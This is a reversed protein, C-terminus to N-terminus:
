ATFFFCLRRAALPAKNVIFAGGDVSFGDGDGSEPGDGSNVESEGFGLEQAQRRGAEIQQHLPELNDIAFSLHLNGSQAGFVASDMAIALLMGLGENGGLKEGFEPFFSLLALRRFRFRRAHRGRLLKGSPFM